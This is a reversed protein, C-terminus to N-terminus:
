GQSAASVKAANARKGKEGEDGCKGEQWPSNCIVAQWTAANLALLQGITFERTLPSAALFDSLGCQGCTRRIKEHTKIM